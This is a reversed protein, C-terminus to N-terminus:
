PNCNCLQISSKNRITLNSLDDWTESGKADTEGGIVLVIINCAEPM